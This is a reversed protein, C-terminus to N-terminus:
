RPVRRAGLYRPGWWADLYHGVTTGREPSAAHVMVGGGLAMGVHSATGSGDTDFFVLDGPLPEDVPVLGAFQAHSSRSVFYGYQAYVWSVFGSCDWGAPTAGAWVYPVGVYELALVAVADDSAVPPTAPPALPPPAPAETAVPAVVPAPPEAPPPPPPPQPPPQPPVAEEGPVTVVDGIQLVDPDALQPNAAVLEATTAGHAAAIAGLTDGPQVVYEAAAAPAAPCLALGLALAAGALFRRM